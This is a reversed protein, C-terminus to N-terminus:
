WQPPYTPTWPASGGAPGQWVAQTHTPEEEFAPVGSAPVDNFQYRCVGGARSAGAAYGAYWNQARQHGGATRYCTSWYREPPVAPLQGRGGLAVDVFAQRYGDRFDASPLTDYCKRLSRNARRRAEHAAFKEDLCRIYDEFPVCILPHCTGEACDRCTPNECTTRGMRWHSCGAILLCAVGLTVCRAIRRASSLGIM